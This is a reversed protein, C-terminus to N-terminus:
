LTWELERYSSVSFGLHIKHGIWHMTFFTLHFLASTLPFFLLFQFWPTSSASISSLHYEHFFPLSHSRTLKLKTSALPTQWTEKTAWITFFRGAICSVGTQDGLWSFGGSFPIAVLELIRPQLIGHVSWLTVFLQVHSLSKWKWSPVQWRGRCPNVWSSRCNSVKLMGQLSNLTPLSCIYKM